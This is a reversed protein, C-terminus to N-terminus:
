NWLFCSNRLLARQLNVFCLLWLDFMPPKLSASSYQPLYYKGQGQQSDLSSNLSIFDRWQARSYYLWLLERKFQSLQDTLLNLGMGWIGLCLCSEARVRLYSWPFVTKHAWLETCLQSFSPCRSPMSLCHHLCILLSDLFFWTWRQRRPLIKSGFSIHFDMVPM